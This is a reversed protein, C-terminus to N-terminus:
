GASKLVTFLDLYRGLQSFILFSEYVRFRASRGMAFRQGPSCLMGALHGAIEDSDTPDHTLCGDIGDRIQQRIGVARTGLVAHGKWMAETVTLGFGERLSNQVVLSACYQLANVILANERRSTMPLLLIAIDTKLLEDLSLYSQMIENFVEKGEPDDSVGRPDPGAFILRCLELRQQNRPSLASKRRPTEIKKLKVFADLLPKFGKLRDWRSVQLIIPRFLLGIEGPPVIDGNPQIRRVLENFPETLLPEYPTQCGSNCLIGVMKHVTLERNKHSNPDIAPYILMAHDALYSPIYEPASFVTRDYESLFPQLFRWAARTAANREDVGIHCRWVTHVPVLKKLIGAMAVPQPDHVIITDGPKIHHALQEANDRGVEALLQADESSLDIGAEIQGHLLNHLRKTLRFFEPRDSDIVAWRAAIGLENLLKLMTPMMEAVGGGTATSNIMWVTGQFQRTALAAQQTLGRVIASLRADASYVDLAVKGSQEPEVLKLM